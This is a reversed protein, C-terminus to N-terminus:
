NKNTGIQMPISNRPQSAGQNNNQDRLQIQLNQIQMDLDNFKQQMQENMGLITEPVPRAISSMEDKMESEFRSFQQSWLSMIVIMM